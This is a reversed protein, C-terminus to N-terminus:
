VTKYKIFNKIALKQKPPLKAIGMELLATQKYEEKAKDLQVDALEKPDILGDEDEFYEPIFELWKTIRKYNFFRYMLGSYIYAYPNEIIEDPKKMLHICFSSICEDTIFEDRSKNNFKSKIKGYNAYVFDILELNTYTQKTM